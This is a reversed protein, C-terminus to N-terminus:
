LVKDVNKLKDVLESVNQLIIGQKRPIPPTVKLVELRNQYTLNLENLTLVDLRKQKAKMINPLAPYRPENLRLDATIVCPLRLRILELGGDVERTVDVFQFNDLFEIKSAFTAQGWNLLGAIMQGTQNFDDDIAQKGLIVIGIKEKQVIEKMIKAVMLPELREEMQVHIARDAGMALATRLTEQCDSKGASCVIIEEIPHGQEKWRIAEELAIEDFPNIGMKVNATEVQSQNANIHIKVYPDIVRKIPVLIKM